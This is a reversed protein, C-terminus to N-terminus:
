RGPESSQAASCRTAPMVGRAITLRQARTRIGVKMTCCAEASATAHWFKEHERTPSPLTEHSASQDSMQAAWPVSERLTRATHGFSHGGGAPASMSGHCTHRAISKAVSESISCASWNVDACSKDLEFALCALLVFRTWMSCGAPAVLCIRPAHASSGSAAAFIRFTDLPVTVDQPSALLVPCQLLAISRPRTLQHLGADSNRLM